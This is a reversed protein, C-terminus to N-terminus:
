DWRMHYIRLEPGAQVELNSNRGWRMRVPWWEPPLNGFGDVEPLWVDDVAGSRLDIHKIGQGQGPLDGDGDRPHTIALMSRRDPSLLFDDPYAGAPFDLLVHSEEQWADDYWVLEIPDVVEDAINYDPWYYEPDRVAVLLYGRPLLDFAALVYCHRLSFPQVQYPHIVTFGGHMVDGDGRSVTGLQWDIGDIFREKRYDAQLEGIWERQWIETLTFQVRESRAESRVPALLLLTCLALWRM